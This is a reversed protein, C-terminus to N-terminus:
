SATVIQRPAPAPTKQDNNVVAEPTAVARSRCAGSTLAGGVLGGAFVLV